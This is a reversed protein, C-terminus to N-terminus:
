RRAVRRVEGVARLQLLRPRPQKAVRRSGATAPVLVELLLLDEDDELARERHQEAVVRLPAVQRRPADDVDVGVRRELQEVASVISLPASSPATAPRPRTAIPPM